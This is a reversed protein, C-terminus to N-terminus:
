KTASVFEQPPNELKEIALMTNLYLQSFFASERGISLKNREEV